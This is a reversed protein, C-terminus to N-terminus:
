VVLWGGGRIVRFADDRLVVSSEEWSDVGASEFREFWFSLHVWFPSESLDPNVFLIWGRIEQEDEELRVM